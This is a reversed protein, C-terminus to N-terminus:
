LKNKLDRLEAIIPDTMTVIMDGRLIIWIKEDCFSAVRGYYPILVESGFLTDYIM